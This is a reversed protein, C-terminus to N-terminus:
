VVKDPFSYCRLRTLETRGEYSSMCVGLGYLLVFHMKTTVLYLVVEESAIRGVEGFLLM